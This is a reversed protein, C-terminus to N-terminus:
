NAAEITITWSVSDEAEVELVGGKIAGSFPEMKEISKKDYSLSDIWSAAFPNDTDKLKVNFSSFSYKDGNITANGVLVYNGAPINIGRFAKQGTGSFSLTEFPTAPEEANQSAGCHECFSAGESIDKGCSLCDKKAFNIEELLEKADEVTPTRNAESEMYFIVLLLVIIIIFPAYKGVKFEM